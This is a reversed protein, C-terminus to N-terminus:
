GHYAARHLGLVFYLVINQEKTINNTAVTIIPDYSYKGFNSRTKVKKLIVGNVECGNMQLSTNFLFDRGAKLNNTSYPQIDFTSQKLVDIYRGRAAIEQKQVIEEYEHPIGQENTCLLLFAKRQCQTYAVVGDSSIVKNM